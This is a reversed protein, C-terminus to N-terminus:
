DFTGSPADAPPTAAPSVAGTPTATVPASTYDIRGSIAAIDERLSADAELADALVAAIKEQSDVLEKQLYSLYEGFHHATQRLQVRFAYTQSANPGQSEAVEAATLGDAAVALRKLYAQLEDFEVSIENAM